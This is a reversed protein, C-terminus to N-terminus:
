ACRDRERLNATEIRGAKNLVLRARPVNGQCLIFSGNLADTTGNNLFTLHPQTRFNHWRWHLDTPLQEGVLLTAEQASQLGDRDQDHFVRTSASWVNSADCTGAPAHCISISSRRSIAAARAFNVTERLQQIALQQRNRQMMGGFAPVAMSVVIGLVSLCILLEFLSVGRSGRYAMNVDKHLYCGEQGCSSNQVM